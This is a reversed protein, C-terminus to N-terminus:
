LNQLEERLEEVNQAQKIRQQFRTLKELDSIKRVDDMLTLGNTGFKIELSAEIGELKGKKVGKEYSEALRSVEDRIAMQRSEYLERQVEDLSFRKLEHIAQKM